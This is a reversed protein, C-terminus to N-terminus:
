GASIMVSTAAEARLVPVRHAPHSYPGNLPRPLWWTSAEALSGNAEDPCVPGSHSGLIVREGIVFVMAQLGLAKGCFFVPEMVDLGEPLAQPRRTEIGIRFIRFLSM